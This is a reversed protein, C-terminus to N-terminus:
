LANDVQLNLLGFITSLRLYTKLMFRNEVNNQLYARITYMLLKYINNPGLCQQTIRWVFDTNCQVMQQTLHM